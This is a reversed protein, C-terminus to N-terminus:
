VGAREALAQNLKEMHKLIAAMARDIPWDFATAITLVIEEEEDHDADFMSKAAWTMLRAMTKNTM